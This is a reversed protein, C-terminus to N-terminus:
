LPQASNRHEQAPTLDQRKQGTHMDRHIREDEGWLTHRRQAGVRDGKAVLCRQKRLNHPQKQYLHTTQYQSKSGVASIM